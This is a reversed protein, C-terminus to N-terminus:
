TRDAPTQEHTFRRVTYMFAACVLICIGAEVIMNPGFVRFLMAFLGRADSLGLMAILEEPYIMYLATLVLISNSFSGVGASLAASAESRKKGWVGALFRYLYGSILPFCIRPVVSILPNQLLVDLISTERGVARMLSIIGFLLGMFAGYFPGLVISSLIAPIHLNTLNINGIRFFGLLPIVDMAVIIFIMTGLFKIKKETM